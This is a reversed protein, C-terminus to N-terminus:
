ESNCDLTFFSVHEVVGMKLYVDDVPYNYSPLFITMVMVDVMMLYVDVMHWFFADIMMLYDGNEVM